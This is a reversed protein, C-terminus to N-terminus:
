STKMTCDPLLAYSQYGDQVSHQSASVPVSDVIIDHFHEDHNAGAFATRRTGDGTVM